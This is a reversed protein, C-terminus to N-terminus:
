QIVRALRLVSTEFRVGVAKSSKENIVIQPKDGSTTVGLPFFLEVTAADFALAYLQNDQAVEWMSKLTAKDAGPSALVAAAKNKDIEAQLQQEDKFDVAVYKVPRNKVKNVSVDKLENIIPSGKTAADSVVLVVFEGSGRSDFNVDYTLVKLLVPMASKVDVAWASSSALLLAALFLSRVGMLVNALMSRTATPYFELMDVILFASWSSGGQAVM